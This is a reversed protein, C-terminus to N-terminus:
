KQRCAYLYAMKYDGLERFCQELLPASEKPCEGEVPQLCDIAQQWQGLHVCIEGMRLRSQLTPSQMAQLLHLARVPDETDAALLYLWDDPCHLTGAEGAELLLAQWQQQLASTWYLGPRVKSLVQRAYPRKKETLLSRALAMSSLNWLLVEEQVIEGVRSDERLIELVTEYKKAAFAERALETRSKSKEEGMSDELFWGIPKQLRQAFVQLTQMSPRAAGNEIQSLMNRTVVGACLQRQSLGVELRAQKLREGIAM